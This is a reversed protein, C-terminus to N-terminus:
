LRQRALPPLFAATVDGAIADGLVPNEEADSGEKNV